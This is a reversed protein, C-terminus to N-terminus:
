LSKVIGIGAFPLDVLALWQGSVVTNIFSLLVFKKKFCIQAYGQSSALLGKCCKSHLPPIESATKKKQVEINKKKIYNMIRLKCYKGIQLVINISSIGLCVGQINFILQAM